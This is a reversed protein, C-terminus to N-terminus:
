APRRFRRRPASPTPWLVDPTTEDEGAPLRGERWRPGPPPGARPRPGERGCGCPRLPLTPKLAGGQEAPRVPGGNDFNKKQIEDWDGQLDEIKFLKLEPLQALDEAKAAARNLPRYHHKAFIRRRRTRISSSCTLRPRSAPERRTSTPTSWRWRRSPTSRPRRCWWTSSTAASSRSSSTPRTRGPRAARRRPGAARLDRHLRARRHRAGPREQLARGRLRQGQRREQGGERLRLGLGRPLELARRGLDEPEPHHGQHRAERPRGLGQRGEPQGQARPVGGDLHLAPGPQAAQHALGGSSRRRSGAIADIDSPIGLTVVDAPIGDIM